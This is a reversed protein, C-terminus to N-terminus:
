LDELGPKGAIFNCALGLKKFYDCMAICAFKETSYHTGGLINIKHKRAYEHAKQSYDNLASIGTVFTNVGQSAIEELMEIDNGGGAIVAVRGNKIESAGYLYLATRHGVAKQLVKRLEEATRCDTKGFVGALGGGYPAFPNMIKLGLAMALNSSTSYESYNDLPVHFNYVSIRKERFKQLLKRDMQQWKSKKSLDWISPHHVFLLADSKGIRLIHKMVASTPFVATFVRNIEQSNDCVLGMSRKKFNDSLFDEVNKMHVAWEDTMEPTVFDRELMSYVKEAKM